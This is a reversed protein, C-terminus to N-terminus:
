GFTIVKMINPEGLIVLLGRTHVLDHRGDVLVGAIDPHDASIIGTAEQHQPDQMIYLEKGGEEDGLNLGLRLPVLLLQLDDGPESIM